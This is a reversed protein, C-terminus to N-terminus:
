DHCTCARSGPAPWGSPRAPRAGNRWPTGAPGELCTLHGDCYLVEFRSSLLEGLCDAISFIVVRHPSAELTAAFRRYLELGEGQPRVPRYLYIFDLGEPPVRHIDDVVWRVRGPEIGLWHQLREGIRVMEAALEVQVTCTHPDLRQLLLCQLGNGAGFDASVTRPGIWPGAKLIPSLGGAHCWYGGTEDLRRREAPSYPAEIMHLHEYLGLLREEVLEAHTTGDALQASDPTEIAEILRQRLQIYRPFHGGPDPPPPLELLLAILEALRATEEPTRDDCVLLEDRLYPRLGPDTGIM